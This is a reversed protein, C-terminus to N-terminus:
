TPEIRTISSPRHQVRFSNSESHVVSLSPQFYQMERLPGDEVRTRTSSEGEKEILVGRDFCRPCLPVFFFSVGWDGKFQGTSIGVEYLEKMGEDERCECMGEGLEEKNFEYAKQVYGTQPDEKSSLAIVGVSHYHPKWREDTSWLDIAERAM